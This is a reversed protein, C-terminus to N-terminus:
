KVVEEAVLPIGKKGFCEIPRVAFVYHGRAKLEDLSFVCTGPRGEPTEALHFDAAMVRRQLQVLDIEDEVLTATVEYSFVRCGDVTKAAPFSVTVKGDAVTVSAKADAAFAPASRKAGRQAYTYAGAAPVPVIWDPGLSTGDAFNRREIVLSDGLVSIVMGHRGDGTELQAMQHKRNEGQFGHSNGNINEHLSYDTSAYRLSATNISTFAGQWVTREDTLTYHSHGSFAVANPFESLVSTSKGDDRGWAWSGFCTNRPHPHQIYFFPKTKGLEAAHARIFVEMGGLAPWHAGIFAYGKVQKMWIPEYKEGFAQEWVEAQREPAIVTARYAPDAQETESKGWTWALVDHNGYVFLKEVPRGDPGKGGPFVENWCKGCRVLQEVQGRDAIDGAIVVADVNRKAFHRLAALFTDEDGPNKLHIDSLVGFRLQAGDTGVTGAPVAFVHSGFFAAFSTAGAVFQRRSVSTTNMAM